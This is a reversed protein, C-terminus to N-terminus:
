RQPPGLIAALAVRRSEGALVNYTRCAAGLGMAELGVGRAAVYAYTAAPPFQQVAGTALLVVEPALALLPELALPTLEGLAAVPWDLVCEPTVIASARLTRGALRVETDTYGVIFNGGHRPESALQM